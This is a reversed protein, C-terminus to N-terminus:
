TPLWGAPKVGLTTCVAALLPTSSALESTYFGRKFLFREVRSRSLGRLIVRMTGDPMPMIQVVECLTGIRYLDEARPEDVAVDRQGVVLVMREKRIASQLARLSIERGILLTGVLQPFHVNDRVPLLPVAQPIAQSHGSRRRSSAPNLPEGM